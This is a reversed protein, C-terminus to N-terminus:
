KNNSIEPTGSLGDPETTSNGDLKYKKQQFPRYVKNYYATFALIEKPIDEPKVLVCDM